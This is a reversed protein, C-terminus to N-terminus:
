FIMTRDVEGALQYMKSDATNVEIDVVTGPFSAPLTVRAVNAGRVSWFGRESAVRIAGGNEAIFDRILKLGLGGPVGDSVRRTTNQGTMAWDIADQALLARGLYGRVTAPIGVGRDALSFHLQKKNPFYQGCAFIGLSTNSHAVANEFLEFISRRFARQLGTSMAPLGKGRFNQEVYSAFDAGGTIDFQQCRITTGYTDEVFGGVFGNKQLVTAIAPRLQQLRIPRDTAYIAAALPACMNADLWHLGSCNVFVEGPPERQFTAHIRAIEAFGLESTDIRYANIRM